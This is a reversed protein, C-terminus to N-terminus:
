GGGLKMGHVEYHHTRCLTIGNNINLSLEPSFKKHIIHHANIKDTSGCIICTKDRKKVAYSWSQLAHQYDLSPMKFPISLKNLHRKAEKEKNNLRYLRSLQSLRDKNALYYERRKTKNYDLQM